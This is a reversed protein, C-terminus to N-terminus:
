YPKFGTQNTPQEGYSEARISSSETSVRQVDAESYQKSEATPLAHDIRELLRDFEERTVYRDVEKGTVETFKFRRLTPMGIADASKIYMVDQTSDILVMTQNPAIRFANAGEIGQVWTIGSQQQTIYPNNFNMNM